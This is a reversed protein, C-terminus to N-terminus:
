KLTIKIDVLHKKSQVLVEAYITGHTPCNAKPISDTVQYLTSWFKKPFAASVWPGMGTPWHYM